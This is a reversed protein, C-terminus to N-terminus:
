PKINKMTLSRERRDLHSYSLLMNSIFCCEIVASQVDPQDLNYAKWWGTEHFIRSIASFECKKHSKLGRNHGGANVREM